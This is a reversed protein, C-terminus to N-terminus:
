SLVVACCLTDYTIRRCTWIDDHIRARGLICRSARTSASLTSNYVDSHAKRFVELASSAGPQSFDRVKRRVVPGSRFLKTLRTFLSGKNDAM